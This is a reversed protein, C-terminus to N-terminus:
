LDIYKPKQIKEIEENLENCTTEILTEINHHSKKPPPNIKTIEIKIREDVVM